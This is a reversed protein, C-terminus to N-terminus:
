NPNVEQTELKILQNLALSIVIRSPLHTPDQTCAQYQTILNVYLQEMQQNKLLQIHTKGNETKLWLQIQKQQDAPSLMKIREVITTYSVPTTIDTETNKLKLAVRISQVM